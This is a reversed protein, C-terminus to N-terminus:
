FQEPKVLTLQRTARDTKGLLEESNLPQVKVVKWTRDESEEHVAPEV